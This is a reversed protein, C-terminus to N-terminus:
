KLSKVDSLDQAARLSQDVSKHFTQDPYHSDPANQHATFNYASSGHMM